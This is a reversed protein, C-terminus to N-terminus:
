HPYLRSKDGDNEPVVRVRMGRAQIVLTSPLGMASSAADHTVVARHDVTLRLHDQLVKDLDSGRDSSSSRTALLQEMSPRSAYPDVGHAATISEIFAEAAQRLEKPLEELTPPEERNRELYDLFAERFRKLDDHETSM